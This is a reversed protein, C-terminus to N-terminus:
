VLDRGTKMPSDPRVAFAVYETVLFAIPTVDTYTFPLYGAIHASLLMSTGLGLQHPDGARQRVFDYGIAHGGGARNMVASSVPVLKLEQWLRQVTRATNDLSGGAGGPVTLEVHRDPAWGQAATPGSVFAVACFAAAAVRSLSAVVRPSRTARTLPHEGPRAACRGSQNRHLM